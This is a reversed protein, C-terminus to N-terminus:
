HINYTLLERDLLRHVNLQPLSPNLTHIHLLSPDGRTSTKNLLTIRRQRWVMM